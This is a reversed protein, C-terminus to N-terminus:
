FQTLFLPAECTIKNHVKPIHHVIPTYMYMIKTCIVIFIYIYVFYILCYIFNFLVSFSSIILLNLFM